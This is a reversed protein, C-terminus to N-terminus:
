KIGLIKFYALDEKHPRENRLKLIKVFAKLNEKALTVGEGLRMKAVTLRLQLADVYDYQELLVKVAKYKEEELYLESMKKLVFYDKEDFSLAEKLYSLSEEKKDLRYAMDALSTLAWSKENKDENKAKAYVDQLLKYSVELKGLHSQSSTLCTASLLHSARFILKKCALLSTNYDEKAQYIIAILLYPKTKKSAKSTINKLIKLAEDFKHTYQLIDVQHMKLTYNNPYKLLYPALFAKTYGIYSTNSHNKGLKIYLSLVEDVLQLNTPEKEISKLLVSLKKFESNQEITFIVTDLNQPSFPKAFLLNSFLIFIFLQKM